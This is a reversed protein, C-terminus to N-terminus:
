SSPNTFEGQLKRATPQVFTLLLIAGVIICITSTVYYGDREIKCEGGLDSCAIKSHESSCDHAPLM